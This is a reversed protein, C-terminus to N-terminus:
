PRQSERRLKSLHASIATYAADVGIDDGVEQCTRIFVARNVHELLGDCTADYAATLAVYVRERPNGHGLAGVLILEKEQQDLHNGLVTENIKSGRDTGDTLIILVNVMKPLWRERLSRVGKFITEYLHTAGGVHLLMANLRKVHPAAATFPRPRRQDVDTAFSWTGLLDGHKFNDEVAPIAGDVIAATIRTKGNFPPINGNADPCREGNLAARDIPCLMSTSRDLAVIAHLGKVPKADDDPVLAVIWGVVLGALTIIAIAAAAWAGFQLLKNGSFANRLRGLM